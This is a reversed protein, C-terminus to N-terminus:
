IPMRLIDQYASIVRDRISVLTQIAVETEAVATVVDVVDVKGVAQSVVREDALQGSEVIKNVTEGIMAGFSSTNDDGMGLVSSAKSQNDSVSSLAKMYAQNAQVSNIAM